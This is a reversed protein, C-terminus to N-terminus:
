VAVQWQAVVADLSHQLVGFGSHHEGVLIDRMDKQHEPTHVALKQIPQHEQQRTDLGNGMELCSEKNCFVKSILCELRCCVMSAATSAVVWLHM